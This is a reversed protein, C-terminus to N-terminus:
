PEMLGVLAKDVLRAEKLTISLDIFIRIPVENAYLICNRPLSENTSEGAKSLIEQLTDTSSFTFIHRKGNLLKVALSIKYGESDDEPSDEDDLKMKSGLNTKSNIRHSNEALNLRETLDVFSSQSLADSGKICIGKGSGIDPLPQYKSLRINVPRGRYLTRKASKPPFPKAPTQGKLHGSESHNVELKDNDNSSNGIIGILPDPKTRASTGESM